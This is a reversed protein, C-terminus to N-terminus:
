EVYTEDGRSIVIEGSDELRRITAVIKSQAEEADKLRVPGMYEIDEQLMKAANKSMNRFIKEKVEDDTDKLALALRQYDTERLVKQIARDSLMVIDEFVFMRKKIQEALDEDAAQLSEVFNKESHRSMMNLMELSFQIGGFREKEAVAQEDIKRALYEAYGQVISESLTFGKAILPAIQAQKQESLSEFLRTAFIHEMCSLMIAATHTDLLNLAACVLNPEKERIFDFPNQTEAM